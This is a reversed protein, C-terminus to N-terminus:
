TVVNAVCLVKTPCLSLYRGGLFCPFYNLSVLFPPVYHPWRYAGSLGGWFDERWGGARGEWSEECVEGGVSVMDGIGMVIIVPKRPEPLVM